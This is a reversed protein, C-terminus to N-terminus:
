FVKESDITKIAVSACTVVCPVVIVHINYFVSILKFISLADYNYLVQLM